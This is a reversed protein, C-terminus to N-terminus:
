TQNSTAIKLAALDRDLNKVFLRMFDLEKIGKNSHGLDKRISRFIDDFSKFMKKVDEYKSPTLEFTSGFTRWAVFAKIVNEGGWILLKSQYEKFFASINEEINEKDEDTGLFVKSMMFDAFGEYVESKKLRLEHRVRYKAEWIKALVVTLVSVLGAISAAIISPAVSSTLDSLWLLVLWISGLVICLLILIILLGLVIQKKSAKEKVTMVGEFVQANRGNDEGFGNRDTM